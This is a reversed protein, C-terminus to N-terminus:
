SSLLVPFGITWVGRSISITPLVVRIFCCLSEMRMSHGQQPLRINSVFCPSSPNMLMLHSLHLRTAVYVNLLPETAAPCHNVIPAVVLYHTSWRAVPDRLAFWWIAPSVVIRCLLRDLKTHIGPKQKEFFFCYSIM